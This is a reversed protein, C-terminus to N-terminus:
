QFTCNITDFGPCIWKNSFQKYGEISILDSGSWLSCFVM